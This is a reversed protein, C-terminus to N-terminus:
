QALYALAGARARILRLPVYGGTPMPHAHLWAVLACKFADNVAGLGLNIGATKLDSVVQDSSSPDALVKDVENTAQTYVSKVVSLGRDTMCEGYAAWYPKTAAGCGFLLFASAATAFLLAAIWELRTSGREPSPQPQESRAQAMMTPNSMTIFSLIGTLVAPVIVTAHLGSTRISETAADLLATGAGIVIAGKKTHAFSADSTFARLCWAAISLVIVISPTWPSITDPILPTPPTEAAGAAHLFGLLSIPLALITLVHFVNNKRM